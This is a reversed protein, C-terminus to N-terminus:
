EDDQGILRRYRTAAYECLGLLRHIPTTDGDVATGVATLQDGDEDWRQQSYILVYETAVWAQGPASYAEAVAQTAARLATDAARQADTRDDLTM